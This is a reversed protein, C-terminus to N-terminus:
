SAELSAFNERKSPLINIASFFSGEKLALKNNGM